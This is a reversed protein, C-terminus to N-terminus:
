GWINKPVRWPTTQGGSSIVRLLRPRCDSPWYPGGYALSLYHSSYSCTVLFYIWYSWLPLLLLLTPLLTLFPSSIPIESNWLSYWIWVIDLYSHRLAISSTSWDWGGPAMGGPRKLYSSFIKVKPVTLKDCRVATNWFTSTAKELDQTACYSTTMLYLSYQIPKETFLDRM